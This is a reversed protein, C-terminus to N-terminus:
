SIKRALIEKNHKALGPWLVTVDIGNILLLLSIIARMSNECRLMECKRSFEMSGLNEYSFLTCSM